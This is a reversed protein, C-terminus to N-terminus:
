YRLRPRNINFKPLGASIAAHIEESNFVCDPREIFQCLYEQSFIRQGLVEREEELFARRIRPCELATVSFREWRDGECEWARWFFGERGQPTSMMWIKGGLEGGAAALTPRITFYAQDNVEAAEDILLLSVNGFSRIHCSDSIFVIDAGNPLLCSYGNVGDKKHPTGLIRLFHRVKIYFNGCQRLSPCLVLVTTAPVCLAEHIAKVAMITSKGWQRTCNILGRGADSRLVRSQIPDPLFGLTNRAFLVPDQRYPHHPDFYTMVPYMIEPFTIAPSTM